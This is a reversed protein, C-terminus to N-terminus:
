TKDKDTWVGWARTWLGPESDPTLSGRGNCYVSNRRAELFSVSLVFMRV